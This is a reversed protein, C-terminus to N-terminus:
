LLKDDWNLLLSVSQCLHQIVIRQRDEPFHSILRILYQLDPSYQSEQVPVEGPFSILDNVEIGLATALRTLTSSTANCGAGELLRVQSLSVDALRSLQEQTLKRAQRHNRLNQAIWNSVM